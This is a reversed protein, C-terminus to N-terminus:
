AHENQKKEEDNYKEGEWDACFWNDDWARRSLEYPDCMEMEIGCCKGDPFSLQHICNKCRKDDSRFQASPLENLAKIVYNTEIEIYEFGGSWKMLLDIAAQRYITDKM